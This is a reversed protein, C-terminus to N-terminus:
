HFKVYIFMLTDLATQLAHFGAFGDVAMLGLTIDRSAALMLLRLEGARADRWLGRWGLALVSVTQNM